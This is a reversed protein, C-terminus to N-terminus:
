QLQPPDVPFLLRMRRRMESCQAEKHAILEEAARRAEPEIELEAADQPTSGGLGSLLERRMEVDRVTRDLDVACSVFEEIRELEKRAWARIGDDQVGEALFRFIQIRETWSKSSDHALGIYHTRWKNAQEQVAMESEHKWRNEEHRHQITWQKVDRRFQAAWQSRDHCAKLLGLILTALSGSTIVGIPQSVFAWFQEFGSPERADKARQVLDQAKNHLDVSREVDRFILESEIDSIRKELAVNAEIQSLRENTSPASHGVPEVAVPVAPIAPDAARVPHSIALLLIAPLCGSIM